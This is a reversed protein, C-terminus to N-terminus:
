RRRISEVWHFINMGNIKTAVLRPAGEVFCCEALNVHTMFGLVFQNSLFDRPAARAQELIKRASIPYEAVHTEGTLRDLVTILAMTRSYGTGALGAVLANM